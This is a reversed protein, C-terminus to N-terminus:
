IRIMGAICESVDFLMCIHVRPFVVAVASLQAHFYVLIHTLFDPLCSKFRLISVATDEVKIQDIRRNLSVVMPKKYLFM